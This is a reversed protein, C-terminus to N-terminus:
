LTAREPTPRALQVIAFVAVAAGVLGWVVGDDDSAQAAFAVVM